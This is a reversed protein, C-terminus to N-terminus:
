DCYIGPGKLISRDGVKKAEIQMFEQIVPEVHTIIGLMKGTSSLKKLANIADRLPQGSLTGFGEDLFISEVSGKDGACEAIALAFSLSIIFKEGGSFNSINRDSFTGNLHEERVIFDVENEKQILQYQPLINTLYENAKAILSKMAIAQVFVEFDEGTAKGIMDKIRNYIDRQKGLEEIEKLAKAKKEKNNDDRALANKLMGVTQNDKDKQNKLAECRQNLEEASAESIKDKQVEDLKSRTLKYNDDASKKDSEYNRVYKDLAEVESESKRSSLFAEETEFGNEHLLTKYKESSREIDSEIKQLRDSANKKMSKLGTETKEVNHIAQEAAEKRKAAAELRGEVEAEEAKVVKDGFLEQRKSKQAKYEAEIDAFAEEAKKREAEAKAIDIVNIRETIRSYDESNKKQADAKSKYVKLRETLNTITRDIDAAANEESLKLGWIEIKANIDKVLESRKERAAEINGAEARLDNEYNSIAMEAKKIDEDKARLSDSMETIDAAVKSSEETSAEAAVGAAAAPNTADVASESDAAVGAAAAPNAADVASESNVHGTEPHYPRGCVPCPNGKKLGSKLIGAIIMHKSNVFKSLEEELSMKEKQLRELGAREDALSKEYGQKKGTSDRITKEESLLASKKERIAATVEGINEDKQNETLYAELQSINKKLTEAKKHLNELNIRNDKLERDAKDLLAKKDTFSNNLVKLRADLEDVQDWLPRKNNKEESISELDARCKEANKKAEALETEINKLQKDLSSINQEENKRDNTLRHLENYEGSCKDAKRANALLANAKLYEPKKEELRKVAADAANFAKQADDLRQKIKIKSELDNIEKGLKALTEELAAKENEKNQREDESLVDIQDIVRLEELYKKNIDSAEASLKAGVKKYFETGSLKALIAAKKREDSSIFRDFEGQPILICRIFQEYSLGILKETMEGLKETTKENNLLFEHTDMDEISCVPKQINGEKKKNAKQQYFTNRFTGKPCVYTISSSCYTSKDNMIDPASGDRNQVIRQARETAGYLALSIADLVTSKGAATEGSIVFQNNNRRFAADSFDIRVKGEYSNINEFELEIIRM